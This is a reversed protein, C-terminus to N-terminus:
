PAVSRYPGAVATVSFVTTGGAVISLHTYRGRPNPCHILGNGAETLTLDVTNGATTDAEATFTTDDDSWELTAVFSTDFTGCSIFFSVSPYLGHDVSETEYTDASRSLAPYGLDDILYNVGPDGKM